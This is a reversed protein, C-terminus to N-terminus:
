YYDYDDKDLIEFSGPGNGEPDRLFLIVKESGDTLRISFGFYEDGFDDMGTIVTDTIEGGIFPKLKNVYFATSM